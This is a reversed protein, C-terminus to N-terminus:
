FVWKRKKPFRFSSFDENTDYNKCHKVICRPMKILKPKWMEYSYLINDFQIQPLLFFCLCPVDDKVDTNMTEALLGLYTTLVRKSVYDRISGETYYEKIWQHIESNRFTFTNTHTNKLTFKRLYSVGDEWSRSKGM